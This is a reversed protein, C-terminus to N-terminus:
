KNERYSKIISEGLKYLLNGICGLLFMPWTLCVLVSVLPDSKRCDETFSYAHGVLLGIGGYLIVFEVITM